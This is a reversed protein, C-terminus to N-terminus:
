RAFFHWGLWMWGLYVAIMRRWNGVLRRLLEGFGAQRDHRVVAAVECVVLALAVAAWVGLFVARMM